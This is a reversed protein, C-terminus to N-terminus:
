FMLRPFFLKRPFFFFHIESRIRAGSLFENIGHGIQVGACEGAPRQLQPSASPVPLGVGPPKLGLGRGGRPRWLGPPAWGAPRPTDSVRRPSPFAAAAPEPRSVRPSGPRTGTFPSNSGHSVRRGERVVRRLPDPRGAAGAVAPSGRGARPPREGLGAGLPRLPQGRGM